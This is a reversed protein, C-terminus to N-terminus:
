RLNKMLVSGSYLLDREDKIEIQIGQINGQCCGVIVKRKEPPIDDGKYLEVLVLTTSWFGLLTCPYEIFM